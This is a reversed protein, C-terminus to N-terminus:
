AALEDAPDFEAEDDDDDLDGATLLDHKVQELVGILEFASFGSNEASIREITEHISVYLTEAASM